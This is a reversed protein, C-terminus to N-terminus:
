FSTFRNQYCRFDIVNTNFQRVGNKEVLHKWRDTHEM